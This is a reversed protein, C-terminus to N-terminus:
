ETGSQHVNVGVGMVNLRVADDGDLNTDSLHDLADQYRLEMSSDVGVLTDQSTPTTDHVGLDELTASSSSSNEASRPLEVMSPHIGLGDGQSYFDGTPADDDDEELIHINLLWEPFRPLLQYDDVAPLQEPLQYEEFSMREGLYSFSLESSPDYLAERSADELSEPADDDEGPAELEQAELVIHNENHEDLNEPRPIANDDVQVDHEAAQYNNGERDRNNNALDGNEVVAVPELEVPQVAAPALAVPVVARGDELMAKGRKRASKALDPDIVDEPPKKDDTIWEPANEPSIDLSSTSMQYGSDFLLEIRGNQPSGCSEYPLTESFESKSNSPATEWVDTSTEKTTESKTTSMTSQADEWIEAADWQSGSDWNVDTSYNLEPSQSVESSDLQHESYIVCPVIITGGDLKCDEVTWGATELVHRLDAISIFEGDRNATLEYLPIEHLEREGNYYIRSRNAINHMRFESEHQIIENQSRADVDYPYNTERILKYTMHCHECHEKASECSCQGSPETINHSGLTCVGQSTIDLSELVCLRCDQRKTDGLIQSLLLRNLDARADDWNSHVFVAMQSCCGLQETGAPGQGIGEFHVTYNPYRVTVNRAWDEFQVRTWEFKHDYHRIGTFNPFLVNFDANPTTFVAIRPQIFHFINHPLADLTDPYLHEIVEVHLPEKRRKLFDAAFPEVKNGSFELLTRDVDVFLAERLGILSKVYKFFSLEACGFDVVKALQGRWKENLLIQQVAAYRQCYVPPDFTLGIEADGAATTVKNEPVFLCDDLESQIKELRSTTLQRLLRSVHWYLIHFLIIM